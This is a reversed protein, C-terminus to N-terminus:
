HASKCLPHWGEDPDFTVVSGPVGTGALYYHENHAHFDHSQDTGDIPLPLGAPIVVVEQSLDWAQAITERRERLSNTLSNM